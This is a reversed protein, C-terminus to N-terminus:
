TMASLREFVDNLHALADNLCLASRWNEAKEKARAPQGNKETFVRVDWTPSQNLLEVILDAHGLRSAKWRFGGRKLPEVFWDLALSVRSLTDAMENATQFREAPEVRLAKRVITRLRQPVHPMFRRRDPIKGGSIRAELLGPDAPIQCSFFDDGNVARYLLLGSHYIDALTTAVGTEITEPPQANCYLPPVTVVGSSSISRSQGFDAVMPKDTNSFLVNSPKLDFHIYNKLHIQALGALVGRAVRHVESLRLPRDRIRDALSGRQYYPMALSIASPTECAYQIAIVNEHAVRFMARAEDFYASPNGFRTKAIEKVAVRGGLQPDDALYAESNMGQGVGIQKLKTYSLVALVRM